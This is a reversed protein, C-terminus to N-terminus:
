PYCCGSDLHDLCYFGGHKPCAFAWCKHCLLKACVACSIGERRRNEFCLRCLWDVQMQCRECYTVVQCSECICFSCWDCLYHESDVFSACFERKCTFCLAPKSPAM